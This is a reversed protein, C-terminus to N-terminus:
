FLMFFAISYTGECKKRARTNNFWNRVRKVDLSAQHAIIDMEWSCPYPNTAFEDELIQRSELPIRNQPGKRKASAPKWSSTSAQRDPLSSRAVLEDHRQEVQPLPSTHQMATPNASVGGSLATPERTPLSSSPSGYIPERSQVLGPGSVSSCTHQLNIAQTNADEGLAFSLEVPLAVHQWDKSTQSGSANHFNTQQYSTMTSASLQLSGPSGPQWDIMLVDEALVQPGDQAEYLRCELGHDRELLAFDFFEDLNDCTNTTANTTMNARRYSGLM